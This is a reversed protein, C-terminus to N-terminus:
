GGNEARQGGAGILRQHRRITCDDEAVALSFRHDAVMRLGRVVSGILFKRRRITGDAETVTLTFRRDAVM